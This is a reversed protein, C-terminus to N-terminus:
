MGWWYALKLMFINYASARWLRNFSRNWRFTDTYDYDERQQTWVLYLTSGPQYEWRWVANGRLSKVYFNPDAFQLTEAPGTGDPDIVYDGDIPRIQDAAYEHFDYTKPRALEKFQNYKGHSILPQVYLQLSMRPNFTWNLRIEASIQKQEFNAFLYRHGYTATATADEFAGVWQAADRELLYEPTLRLTLNSKVKWEIGLNLMRFAEGVSQQYSSAELSFIWPKRDDSEFMLDVEWGPPNLSLPGGRTRRNNVTEPNYALIYQFEYYNLFQCTGLHFIGRWISNLDFDYNQFIATMLEAERTFRGPKVWQYGLGIHGNILDGRSLFGLDNTDFGPALMGFASNFIVNGKQKNLTLRGALGSLSTAASDVQVHAADPRQFYHQSNRQLNTIRTTTGRVHSGGFWGSVVWTRSTDLFTWGDVGFTFANGNLEDRLEPREFHRSTLTSIFGLGRYGKRIEKQGRWIGYYTLPEIESEFKQHDLQFEGTEARTLAQIAGLSWGNGAKGTLKAAGLIHVGEPLDAYDHEPLSGQPARGIRRSYFFTPNSWNFSWFSRAGGRGFNFISAGEIFFPRKEEYFSEVDSLNVIAPDVEVQGFDPNLTLDLTLNSGLGLKADLGTAPTYRAQQDYPNGIEPPHYDAKTRFYPLIELHRAMQINELGKLDVFRSVFGSSNKPTYVLYNHENRRQIDRRFNIAWLYEAQQQFRLQSFPIRIELSWGQNNRAVKGEWVGDWSDDDWEDNYLIGDFCTGGANLGFYYGSRRDYYPDLFVFFQDAYVDADRRGLVAVISDPASDFMLAAVYLAKEDYGVRVWTSESPTNGEHPERQQFATVVPCAQWDSENVKGDITIATNFRVAHVTKHHALTRAQTALILVLLWGLGFIRRTWM